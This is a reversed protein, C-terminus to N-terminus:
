AYFQKVAPEFEKEYVAQVQKATDIYIKTISDVIPKTGEIVEEIIKAVYKVIINLAESIEKLVKDDAIEKYFRDLDEAFSKEIKQFTPEVRSM